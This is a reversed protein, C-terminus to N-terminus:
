HYVQFNNWGIFKPDAFLYPEDNEIRLVSDVKTIKMGKGPLLKINGTM